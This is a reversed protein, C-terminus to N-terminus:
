KYLESSLPYIRKLKVFIQNALDSASAYYGSAVLKCTWLISVNKSDLLTIEVKLINGKAYSLVDCILIGDVEESIKQADEVEAICLSAYFNEVYRETPSYFLLCSPDIDMLIFTSKPDLYTIRSRDSIAYISKFYHESFKLSFLTNLEIRGFFVPYLAIKKLENIRIQSNPSIKCPNSSCGCLFVSIFILFVINYFRIM